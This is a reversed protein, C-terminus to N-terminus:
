ILISLTKQKSKQGSQLTVKSKPINFYEALAKIVALNAKNEIPQEKVSVLFHTEDIKKIEETRAKTKVRVFIKM